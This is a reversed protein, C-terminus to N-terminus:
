LYIIGRRAAHAVADTRGTADLKDILKGVHFKATDPSIRLKRAIAKSSLGEALLVIVQQERAALECNGIVDGAVVVLDAAQGPEAIHLEVVRGLMEALRAALIPDEVRISLSLADDGQKSM